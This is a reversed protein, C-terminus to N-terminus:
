LMNSVATIYGIENVISFEYLVGQTMIIEYNIDSFKINKDFKDYKWLIGQWFMFKKGTNSCKIQGAFENITGTKTQGKSVIFNKDINIIYFVNPLIVAETETPFNIKVESQGDYQLANLNSANLPTGNTTIIPKRVLYVDEITGNTHQLSYRNTETSVEDVFNIKSM